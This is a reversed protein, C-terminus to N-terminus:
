IKVAVVFNRKWALGKTWRVVDFRGLEDHLDALVEVDMRVLLDLWFAM